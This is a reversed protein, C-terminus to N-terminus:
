RVLRHPFSYLRPDDQQEYFQEVLDIESDEHDDDGDDGAEQHLSKKDEQDAEYAVHVRNRPSRGHVLHM